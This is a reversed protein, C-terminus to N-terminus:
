TAAASGEGLADAEEAEERALREKARRAAEVVFGEVKARDLADYVIGRLVALLTLRFPSLAHLHNIQKQSFGELREELEQQSSAYGELRSVLDAKNGGTSLGCRKAEEKLAPNTGLKVVATVLAEV